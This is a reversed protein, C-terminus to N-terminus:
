LSHSVVDLHDQSSPIPPVHKLRTMKSIIEDFKKVVSEELIKFELSTPHNSTMQRIISLCEKIEISFM